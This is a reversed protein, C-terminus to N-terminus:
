GSSLPSASTEGEDGGHFRCPLFRIAFDEPFGSLGRFYIGLTAQQLHLRVGSHASLDLDLVKKRM